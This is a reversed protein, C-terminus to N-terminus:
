GGASVSGSPCQRRASRRVVDPPSVSPLTVEGSGRWCPAGPVSGVSPKGPLSRGLAGGLVVDPGTVDGGDECGGACCPFACRWVPLVIPRVRPRARSRKTVTTRTSNTTNLVWVTSMLRTKVSTFAGSTSANSIAATSPPRTTPRSFATSDARPRRRFRQDSEARRPDSGIPTDGERFKSTAVPPYYRKNGALLVDGDVARLGPASRM